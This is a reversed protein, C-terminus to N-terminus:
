KKFPKNKMAKKVELFEKILEEREEKSASLINDFFLETTTDKMAEIFKLVLDYDLDALLPPIDVKEERGLLIYDSTVDFTKALRSIDDHDPDTYSREWNSIVQASVNVRKALDNQTWNNLKRLRKIREGVTEM